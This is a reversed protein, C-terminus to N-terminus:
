KKVVVTSALLDHLTQKKATFLAMIYGILLFTSLYTAFFRGISRGFTIRNGNLDEVKLGMMKKGITGQISSCEFGAKYGLGLIFGWFQLPGDAFDNLLIGAFIITFVIMIIADIVTALFRQGFTAYIQQFTRDSNPVFPKQIPEQVEQPKVYHHNTWKAAGENLSTAETKLTLKETNSTGCHICTKTLGDNHKGCSPCISHGESSGEKTDGRSIDISKLGSV